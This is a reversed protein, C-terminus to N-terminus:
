SWSFQPVSNLTHGKNRWDYVEANRGEFIEERSVLKTNVISVSAGSDLIVGACNLIIKHAVTKKKVATLLYSFKREQDLNANSTVEKEFLIKWWLWSSRKGDFEQTEPKRPHSVQPANDGSENILSIGSRQRHLPVTATKLYHDQPIIQYLKELTSLCQRGVEEQTLFVNAADESAPLEDGRSEQFKRLAGSLKVYHATCEAINDFFGEKETEELLSTCLTM